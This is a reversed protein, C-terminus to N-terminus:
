QTAVLRSIAQRLKNEIFKQREPSTIKGGDLESVDFSDIAAGCETMIRANVINLALESFTQSIVYLLGLHDETEIEILTRTESEENDFYIETAMREGAYAQHLPQRIIQRAILASLDIKEGALVKELLDGFKDHQQHNALNGTRGDNVFFTDLVIGDDRTFIQAGLINLGAASLSGVIKSFLGARDWTCVKVAGYGRDPEDRWATVSSLAHDDELILRRMFHHALELDDVVEKATRIQFYRLPLTAFHAEVEGGSLSKAALERVEKLLSERRGEGARIFEAGGTLLNMTHSHLQWLLTDKFGNWLKDSTGQSDAFTLLTLLNLAEPTEIKRAFNRIVADDDLDRRQSVGAMLLHNEIVVRLTHEASVDLQLRKAARAAMAASVEPHRGRKHHEAKGVDHLLLALYLLGPRELNQFLPAYHKYPEEQAEWVRDLQELCVLTHEDAAYQHYFEHQVLCTLKGFEPIYKGLLNVEHMARLIPAVSGRQALITLFTEHVHKDNLFNRDVLSIHNRILQVLDPHLQLRRQQAYLFARMLRQPQDRFVRSSAARIEGNVFLFGDVPEPARRKPLWARLSLKSQPTLLAMRQELTRTTLFVNRMHTYLDRMFKEIRKGPSRESYGLGLAVAPQLNKGLVDVARNTQYHLETRVRLLFDYAAELQKHESQNVFEREQLEGLSPAHYKFFAMWLLNQFDRLGGCGNKINPAQMCASNGFKNRRATQDELRASIYREEFGDICKNVLTKQFKNFLAEDGVIFRSEILSTKSQMDVNAVKVCDDISRVAHGVKLGIDWLPYLVGDILRSLYPLPRGVAVQGDHLFMFDIDSHPNLEGRGYGGIAILALPPFEKQAQPSLSGRASEWLHRLLADLMAARAQCIERGGAGGRHLLKLRHTEVKLFAKCRALREAANGAPKLALRAEADDEIKKLLDQV